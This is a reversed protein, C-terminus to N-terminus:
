SAFFVFPFLDFRNLLRLLEYPKFPFLSIALNILPSITLIICSPYVLVYRMAKM